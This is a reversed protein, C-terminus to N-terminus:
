LPVRLTERTVAYTIVPAPELRAKSTGMGRGVERFGFKGLVAASAENDEFLGAEIRNLPFREFVEPLFASLAESAIGQRWQDPEILYALGVPKGGLGLLGVMWGEREIALRFGPLGRFHSDAIYERADAESMGVPITSMNRAVEPVAMASLRPADRMELARLVLRPTYLTFDQRENWRVRTLRMRNSVVDQRFSRAHRMRRDEFVFGLSRLLRGSRDNGEFYGSVLDGAGPDSFWHGVVAHAAEFGYGRGWVPRSLWYALEDDLCVIGQLGEADCIAWFPKGSQRVRRIFSAADNRGYPYPVVALWKSVDFNGIGTVIAETDQDTLPRLTLRPTRIVPLAAYSM